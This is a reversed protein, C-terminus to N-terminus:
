LEWIAEKEWDAPFGMSRLPILIRHEDLLEKLRKKYPSTPNATQLLYNLMCLFHYTKSRMVTDPNSIWQLNKSFSLKEPVINMDRNWLRAHHACINRVYNIAHLWSCFTRPPMGFYSAIGNIDARQKLGSCIRSLHNFYMIEVSMWSPPNKPRDYKNRYHQIFAEAKNNYLQEKIHKQIEAHVDIMVERGDKLIITTPPDFVDALDQWHSGYKHSLQYIIQARIAIELREIADFVLLRLKRDFVYLYYVMDWTTGQRFDDFIVGNKSQKYPLMYASLRYYSINALHREAREEDEIFLGRSKLLAIQQPYTLPPKNYQEM